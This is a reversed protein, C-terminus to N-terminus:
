FWVEYGGSINLPSLCVKHAGLGLSAMSVSVFSHRLTEQPPIPWCHVAAPVPARPEAPKPIAHTSKSSAEMVGGYLGWFKCLVPSVSEQLACVSVQIFWSGSSLLLSGVLSHGLSARSHGPTEPPPMLRCYGAAPNPANLTSTGAQSRKSSTGMIKM